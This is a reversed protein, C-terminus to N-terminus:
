PWTALVEDNGDLIGDGNADVWRVVAAYKNYAQWFFDRLWVGSAYM